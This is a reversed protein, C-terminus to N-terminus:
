GNVPTISYKDTEYNTSGITYNTTDDTGHMAQGDVYLITGHLGPQDTAATVTFTLEDSVTTGNTLVDVSVSPVDSMTDPGEDVIRYFRMTSNQPRVVQPSLDYNGTDLWFTNSGQSPYQDYLTQWETSGDDNTALANAFQVQYLESNTSTWTLQISHEPTQAVSTFQPANQSFGQGISGAMVMLALGVWKRINMKGKKSQGASWVFSRPGSVGGISAGRLAQGSSADLRAM